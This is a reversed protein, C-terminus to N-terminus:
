LALARRLEVLRDEEAVAVVGDRLEAARVDRALPRRVEERLDQLPWAQGGVELLRRAVDGVVVRELAEAVAVVAVRPEARRVLRRHVLEEGGVRRQERADGRPHVLLEGRRLSLRRSRVPAGHARLREVEDAADQRRRRERVDPDICRPLRVLLEDEVQERMREGLRAGVALHQELLQLRHHRAEYGAHRARVAASAPDLVQAFPVPCGRGRGRPEPEVFGSVLGSSGRHVQEPRVPALLLQEGRQEVLGGSGALLLREGRDGAQRRRLARREDTVQHGLALVPAVPGPATELREGVAELDDGVVARKAVQLPVPQQRALPLPERGIM